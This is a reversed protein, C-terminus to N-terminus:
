RNRCRSTEVFVIKISCRSIRTSIIISNNNNNNSGGGGGRSLTSRGPASPGNTKMLKEDTKM